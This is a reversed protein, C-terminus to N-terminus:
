DGSSDQSRGFTESFQRFWESKRECVFHNTQKRVEQCSHEDECLLPNYICVALSWVEHFVLYIEGNWYSCYQKVAVLIANVVM